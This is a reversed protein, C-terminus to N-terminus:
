VLSMFNEADVQCGHFFHAHLLCIWSTVCRAKREHSLRMAGDEYLSPGIYGRALCSSRLVMEIAGFSFSLHSVAIQIMNDLGEPWMHFVEHWSVSNSKTVTDKEIEPEISSGSEM